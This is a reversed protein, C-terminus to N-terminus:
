FFIAIATDFGPDTLDVDATPRYSRARVHDIFDQPFDFSYNRLYHVSDIRWLWLGDSILSPGSRIWRSDDILDVVDELVDFVPTGAEMYEIIQARDDIIRTTYSDAMAPLGPKPKGYMEQYIGVTRLETM